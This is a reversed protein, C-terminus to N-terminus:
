RSSISARGSLSCRRASSSRVAQEIGLTCRLDGRGPLAGVADRADKLCVPM